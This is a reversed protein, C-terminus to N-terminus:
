KKAGGDGRLWADFAKVGQHQDQITLKVFRLFEALNLDPFYRSGGAPVYEGNELRLVELRNFKVAWLEPVGVKAYMPRKPIASRTVEVEIVLDLPPGNVLDLHGSDDLVIKRAICYCENPEMAQLLDEREFTLNGYGHIPIDRVFSYHELLRAVATKIGEHWGTTTMIEMRGNDFTVRAHQGARELYESTQKYYNWSVNEFVFHMRDAVTTAPPNEVLEALTM